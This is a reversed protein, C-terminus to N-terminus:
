QDRRKKAEEKFKQKLEEKKAQYTKFQDANLVSSLERDKAKEDAKVAKLKQMRSEGGNKTAENKNAYKINIDQVKPVQEETLSLNTKMWDTIATAREEPTKPTKEQASAPDCVALIILLPVMKSFIKKM